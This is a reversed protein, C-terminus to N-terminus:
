AALGTALLHAPITVTIQDADSWTLQDVAEIGHDLCYIGGAVIAGRGQPTRTETLLLSPAGCEDCTDGFLHDAGIHGTVRDDNTDLLNRVQQTTNM